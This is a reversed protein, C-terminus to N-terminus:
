DVPFLCFRSGRGEFSLLVDSMLALRLRSLTIDVWDLLAMGSAEGSREGALFRVLPLWKGAIGTAASGAVANNSGFSIIVGCRGATASFDSLSAGPGGIAGKVGEAVETGKPPDSAMLWAILSAAATDSPPAWPWNLTSILFAGICSSSASADAANALTAVAKLDCAVGRRLGVRLPLLSRLVIMTGFEDAGSSGTEETAEV